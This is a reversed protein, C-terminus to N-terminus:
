ATPSLAAQNSTLESALALLMDPQFPKQRYVVSLGDYEEQVDPMGSLVIIPLDVTLKRLNRVFEPGNMGPMLHDTVVLAFREATAANELLRIAESASTATVVERFLRGLIARRGFTQVPNDDVLLLTDRM